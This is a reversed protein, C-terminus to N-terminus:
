GRQLDTIRGDGDIAVRLTEGNLTWAAEYDVPDVARVREDADLFAVATAWDIVLLEHGHDQFCDRVRADAFGVLALVGSHATRCTECQLTVVGAFRSGCASCVGDPDHDDCVTVSRDVPGACDPCLGDTMSRVRATLRMLAADLVSEPDRDRLGAAPFAFTSITGHPNPTGGHPEREGRFTGACETCLVRLRDADHDLEVAAGCYPCPEDLGVSEFAPSGTVDGALVATMAVRGSRTLEYTEDAKRVFHGVLKGFHYNFNGTDQIGARDAVESFRLPGDAEWLARMAAMRTDHALLEFAETPARAEGDGDPLDDGTM